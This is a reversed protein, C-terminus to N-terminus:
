RFFPNNMENKYYSFFDTMVEAESSCKEFIIYLPISFEKRLLFRRLMPPLPLNGIQYQVCNFRNEYSQFYKFCRRRQLVLYWLYHQIFRKCIRQLNCYEGRFNIQTMIEKSAKIIDDIGYTNGLEVSFGISTKWEYVYDNSQQSYLLKDLRLLILQLCKEYATTNPDSHKLTTYRGIIDAGDNHYNISEYEELKSKHDGLVSQNTSKLLLFVHIVDRFYTGGNELYLANSFINVRSMFKLFRYMYEDYITNLAM